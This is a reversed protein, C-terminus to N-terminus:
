YHTFPSHRTIAGMRLFILASFMSLTVPAFVGAFAGLTRTSSEESFTGFQVYGTSPSNAPSQHFMGSIRRMVSARGGKVLPANDGTNTSGEPPALMSFPRQKLNPLSELPGECGLFVVVVDFYVLGFCFLSIVTSVQFSLVRSLNNKTDALTSPQRLAGKLRNWTSKLIARTQKSRQQAIKIKVGTM